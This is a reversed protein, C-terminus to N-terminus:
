PHAVDFGHAAYHKLGGNGDTLFNMFQTATEPNKAFRLLGISVRSTVGDFEPLDIAQLDPYSYLLGDYVIGADASGIVLDNAVDTVSSRFALTAQELSDWRKSQTLHDRVVKGIAAADPSAQVLRIDPQLLDEFSQISKPNGKRVAVTAKMKAVPRQTTVLSRQSALELYSDDAPLYLDGTQSIEISSLLTQSAGFQTQVQTGTAAEFEKCVREIVARNSAACFLVLPERDDVERDVSNLAFIAFAVTIISATLIIIPRTM